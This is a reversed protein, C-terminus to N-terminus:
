DKTWINSWDKERIVELEGHAELMRCNVKGEFVTM